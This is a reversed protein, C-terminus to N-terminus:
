FLNMQRQSELFSQWEPKKAEHDLWDRVFDIPSEYDKILDPHLHHSRYGTGTIPLRAGEPSLVRIEFHAVRVEYDINYPDPKYTVSLEVGQWRFVESTESLQEM